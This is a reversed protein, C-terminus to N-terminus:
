LIIFNSVDGLKFLHSLMCSKYIDSFALFIGFTYYRHLFRFHVGPPHLVMTCGWAGGPPMIMTCGPPRLMMTCGGHVRPPAGDHHVM